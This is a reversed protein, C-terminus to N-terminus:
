EVGPFSQSFNIDDFQMFLIYTCWEWCFLLLSLLIVKLKFMIFVKEWSCYIFMFMYGCNYNVKLCILSGLSSFQNQKFRFIVQYLLFAPKCISVKPENNFYTLQRACERSTPIASFASQASLPLEGKQIREEHINSTSPM